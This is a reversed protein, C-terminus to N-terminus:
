NRVCISAVEACYPTPPTSGYTESGKTFSYCPKSQNYEVPVLGYSTGGKVTELPEDAYCSFSKIKPVLCKRDVSVDWDKAPFHRRVIEIEKRYTPDSQLRVFSNADAPCYADQDMARVITYRRDQSCLWAKGTSKGTELSVESVSSLSNEPYWVHPAYVPTAGNLTQTLNTLQSTYLLRYGVGFAKKASTSDPTSLKELNTPVSFGLVLQANTAFEDRYAEAQAQADADTAGAAIFNFEGSLTRGTAEPALPFYNIYDTVDSAAYAKSAIVELWRDDSLDGLAPFVNGGTKAGPINYIQGLDSIKRISFQPQQNKNGSSESLFKKMQEYTVATNKPNAPDYVAQLNASAYDFFARRVSVGSLIRDPVNPTMPKLIEYAGFRLSFSKGGMNRSACSLYSIQDIAADYAFPASKSQSSEQELSSDLGTSMTDFGAKGCNQFVAGVVLGSAIVVILAKKNVFKFKNSLRNFYM